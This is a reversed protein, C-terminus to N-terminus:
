PPNGGCPKKWRRRPLAGFPGYGVEPHDLGQFPAAQQVHTQLRAALVLDAHVQGVDTAGHHPVAAVAGGRFDFAANAQVAVQQRKGVRDVAALDRDAGGHRFVKQHEAGPVLLVLVAAKPLVQRKGFLSAMDAPLPAAVHLRRGTAPHRLRIEAAHLAQRPLRLRQRDELSLRDEIFRLFLSPDVGYMKDGVLPHGLAQLSARIQHLRGTAPLAEVLSLDAGSEIRRFTTVCWKGPPADTGATEAPLFRWKKRIGSDADPVLRGRACTEGDPFRGEVVALYRKWVEGAQFQAQCRRAAEPSRAVVVVGSTERDLRNVFGIYPLHLHTKLLAWLTHRFYRGAPHCPLNGPKNVVLLAKDAHLIEYGADVPPEPLDDALYELTDGPKLVADPRVPRHNVLVQAAEILSRWTERDHYGFRRALLDLVSVGHDQARRNITASRRM